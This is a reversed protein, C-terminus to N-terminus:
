RKVMTLAIDKGLGREFALQMWLFALAELYRANTLPGADVPEFGTDKILAAVTKKAETDDGCYFCSIPHHSFLPNKLNEWYITNFAKVVNAGEAWQAVEEAASTSRRTDRTRDGGRNAVANTCDILTKGKLSGASRLATEAAEWPTALLIVNGFAVADAVTGVQVRPGLSGLTRRIEAPRRSGLMVAHGQTPWLAALTSAMKGAGITGVTM